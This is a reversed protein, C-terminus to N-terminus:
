NLQIHWLVTLLWWWQRHMCLAAELRNMVDIDLWEDDCICFNIRCKSTYQTVCQCDEELLQNNCLVQWVSKVIVSKLKFISWRFSCLRTRIYDFIWLWWSVFLYNFTSIWRMLKPFFISFFCQVKPLNIRLIFFYFMKWAEYMTTHFSGIEM